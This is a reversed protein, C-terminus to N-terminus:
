CMFIPGSHAPTPYTIHTNHIRGFDGLGPLVRVYRNFDTTILRPAFSCGVVEKQLRLEERDNTKQPQTVNRSPCPCRGGRLCGHEVSVM